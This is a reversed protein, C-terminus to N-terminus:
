FRWSTVQRMSLRLWYHAGVALQRPSGCIILCLGPEQDNVWHSGTPSGCSLNLAQSKMCTVAFGSLTLICLRNWFASCLAEPRIHRIGLGVYVVALWLKLVKVTQKKKGEKLRDKRGGKKGEMWGHKSYKSSFFTLAWKEIYFAVLFSPTPPM